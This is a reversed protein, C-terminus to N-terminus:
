GNYDRWDNIACILRESITDCDPYKGKLERIFDYWISQEAEDNFVIEYTINVGQEKPQEDDDEEPANEDFMPVDVGWDNLENADWENALMDMDWEGFTSNDIIVAKRLVKAPTDSPIELCACEKLGIERMAALRMNGGIVVWEGNNDYVKLPEIGTLNDERLSAVLARYKADKLVRPNAPVGEIQGRNGHLQDLSLTIIKSETINM